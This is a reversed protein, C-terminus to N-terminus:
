VQYVWEIQMRYIRLSYCLQAVLVSAMKYLMIYINILIFM